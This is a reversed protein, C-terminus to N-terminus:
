GTLPISGSMSRADKEERECNQAIEHGRANKEETAVKHARKLMSKLTKGLQAEEEIRRKKRSEKEKEREIRQRKRLNREKARLRRKRLREQQQKAREVERKEREEETLVERVLAKHRGILQGMKLVIDRALHVKVRMTARQYEQEKKRDAVKNPNVEASEKKWQDGVKVMVDIRKSKSEKGLGDIRMGMKLARPLAGVRWLQKNRSGWERIERWGHERTSWTKKTKPEDKWKQFLDRVEQWDNMMRETKENQIMLVVLSKDNGWTEKRSPLASGLGESCQYRLKGKEIRGVVRLTQANEKILQEIEDDQRCVAIYRQANWEQRVVSVKDLLNRLQWIESEADSYQMLVVTGGARTLTETCIEQVARCGAEERIAWAQTYLPNVQAETPVGWIADCGASITWKTFNDEIMGTQARITDRTADHAENRQRIRQKVNALWIRMREWAVQEDKCERMFEEWVRRASRWTVWATDFRKDGSIWAVRSKGVTRLKSGAKPIRADKRYEEAEAFFAGYVKTCMMDEAGHVCEVRHEATYHGNGCECMNNRTKLVSWQQQGM